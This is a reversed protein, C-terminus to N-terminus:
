TILLMSPMIFMPMGPAPISITNIINVKTPANTVEKIVSGM